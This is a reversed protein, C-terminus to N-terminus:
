YIKKVNFFIFRARDLSLFLKMKKILILKIINSILSNIAKVNSSSSSRVFQYSIHKKIHIEILIYSFQVTM